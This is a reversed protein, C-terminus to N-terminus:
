DAVLRVGYGGKWGVFEVKGAQYAYIPTGTPAGFDIGSHFRRNRTIPHIRWGYGSTIPSGKATPFVTDRSKTAKQAKTFQQLLRVPRQSELWESVQPLAIVMSLILTALAYKWNPSIPKVTAADKKNTDTTSSFDILLRM